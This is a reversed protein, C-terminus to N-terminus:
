IKRGYILLDRRAEDLVAVQPLHGWKEFGCSEVLKISPGNHAFIFALLTEIGLKPCEDIVMCIIKKGLGKGRYNKHLYISIEAAADFAPRGYFSQLSVWGCAMGSYEVIWLPRRDHSHEHFWALRKNISVPETDATVMRSPITSNYIEVLFPLDMIKAHRLKINEM